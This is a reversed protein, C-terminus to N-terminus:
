NLFNSKQKELIAPKAFRINAFGIKKSQEIISQKINEMDIKEFIFFFFFKKIIIEFFFIIKL